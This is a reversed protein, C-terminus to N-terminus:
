PNSAMLGVNYPIMSIVVLVVLYIALTFKRIMNLKVTPSQFLEYISFYVSM